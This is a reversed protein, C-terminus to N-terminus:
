GGGVGARPEGESDNQKTLPLSRSRSFGEGTGGAIGSAIGRQL